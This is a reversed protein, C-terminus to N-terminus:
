PEIPECPVAEEEEAVPEAEVPEEAVPEPQPALEPSELECEHPTPAVPEAPEALEAELPQIELSDGPKARSAPAQAKTEAEAHDALPLADLEVLLDEQPHEERDDQIELEDL